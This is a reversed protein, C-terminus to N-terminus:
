TIGRADKVADYLPRLSWAQKVWEECETGNESRWRDLIVAITLIQRVANTRAQISLQPFASLGFLLANVAFFLLGLFYRGIVAVVAVFGFMVKLLLHTKNDSEILAQISLFYLGSRLTDIVPALVLPSDDLAGATILQSLFPGDNIAQRLFNGRKQLQWFFNGASVAIIGIVLEIVLSTIM